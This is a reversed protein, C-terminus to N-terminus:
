IRVDRFRQLPGVGLLRAQCALEQDELLLELDLVGAPELGPVDL